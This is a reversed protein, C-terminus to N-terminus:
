TGPDVEVLESPLSADEAADPQPLLTLPRALCELIAPTTRPPHIVALIRLPGDCKLMPLVLQTKPVDSFCWETLNSDILFDSGAVPLTETGLDHLSLDDAELRLVILDGADPDCGSALKL